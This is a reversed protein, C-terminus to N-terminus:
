EDCECHGCCTEISVLILIAALIGSGKLALLVGDTPITGSIGFLGTIILYIALFIMGLKKVVGM